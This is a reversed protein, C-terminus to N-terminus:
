LCSSTSSPLTHTDWVGHHRQRCELQSVDERFQKSQPGVSSRSFNDILPVCELTNFWGLLWTGLLSYDPRFLACCVQRCRKKRIAQVEYLKESEVYEAQDTDTEDAGQDETPTQGQEDGEQNRSSAKRKRGTERSGSSQGSEEEKDRRKRQEIGRKTSKTPAGGKGQSRDVDSVEQGSRAKGGANEGSLMKIRQKVKNWTSGSVGKSVDKKKAKGMGEADGAWQVM